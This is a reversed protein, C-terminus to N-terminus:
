QDASHGNLFVSTGVQLFHQLFIYLYSSMSPYKENGDVQFPRSCAFTYECYKTRRLPSFAPHEPNLYHLNTNPEKWRPDTIAPGLIREVPIEAQM